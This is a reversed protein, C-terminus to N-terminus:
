ATETEDLYLGKAKNAQSGEKQKAEMTICLANDKELEEKEDADSTNNDMPNGDKGEHVVFLSKVIGNNFLQEPCYKKWPLGMKQGIIKTSAASPGAHVVVQLYSMTLCTSIEMLLVCVRRVSASVPPM